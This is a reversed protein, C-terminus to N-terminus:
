FQKKEVIRISTLVSGVILAIYVASGLAIWGGTGIAKTWQMDLRPAVIKVALAVLGFVAAMFILSIIRSREAGFKLHMPLTFSLLFGATILAALTGTIWEGSEMDPNRVLAFLLAMCMSASWGIGGTLLGFLYKEAVYGRRSVPLTFLFAYGNNYEDYSVTSITFFVCLMTMYTLVFSIHQGSFLFLAAILFMTIFYQKQGALLKFDKILLGKMNM